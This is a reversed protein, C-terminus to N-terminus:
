VLQAAPNSRIYVSTFYEQYVENDTRNLTNVLSPSVSLLNVRQSGTMTGANVYVAALLIPMLLYNYITGSTHYM